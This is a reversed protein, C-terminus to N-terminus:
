DYMALDLIPFFIQTKTFTFDIAGNNINKDYILFM